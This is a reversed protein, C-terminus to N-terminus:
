EGGVLQRALYAGGVTVIATGVPNEIATAILNLQASTDDSDDDGNDDGNVIGGFGYDGDEGDGSDGGNGGATDSEEVPKVTIGVDDSDAPNGVPMVTAILTYKGPSPVPVTFETLPDSARAPDTPHCVNNVRDSHVERAEDSVLSIKIDAKHGSFSNGNEDRGNCQQSSSPPPAIFELNNTRVQVQMTSGAIHEEGGAVNIGEPGQKININAM